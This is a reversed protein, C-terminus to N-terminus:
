QVVIGFLEYLLTFVLCVGIFGRGAEVVAGGRRTGVVARRARRFVVHRRPDYVLEAGRQVHSTTSDPKKDGFVVLANLANNTGSKPASSQSSSAPDSQAQAPHAADPSPAGYDANHIERANGQVHASRPERYQNPKAESTAAEVMAPASPTASVHSVTSALCLARPVAVNFTRM